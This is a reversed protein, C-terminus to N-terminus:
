NEEPKRDLLTIVDRMWSDDYNKTDQICWKNLLLNNVKSKQELRKTLKDEITDEIYLKYIHVQKSQNIRHIRDFVQLMKAENWWTDLIIANNAATLNIGEASSMLSIFCVNTEPNNQFREINKSRNAVSINGQLDVSNVKNNRSMAARVLNLMGVWQSIIIVKENKSIITDTLEMLASIKASVKIEDELTRKDELDQKTRRVILTTEEVFARCKPCTHIGAKFMKNWCGGCCKHGCEAIRDAVTDYCVPCEEEISKSENYYKLKVIAQELTGCNKLRHMKELILWPSNCAQKLRLIYVMVNGRLLKRMSGDIDIDSHGLRKIKKMMSMMRTQSYERLSDYFEREIDSFKLFSVIELKPKLTKLVIDKKFCVSYKKIDANLDKLGNLNKTIRRTWEAREGDVLGLFKFYVFVDKFSNFIPTATIVWRKSSPLNMALRLVSKSVTTNGNRIYHGEDLLLRGFQIKDFLSGEVNGKYELAIISYSTIFIKGKDIELDRRGKGYYKIVKSMDLDTHKSIESIWNDVLGAPCVILTKKPDRLINVISALSKGLGPESLLMGGDYMEELRKMEKVTEIQFPLLKTKLKVICM